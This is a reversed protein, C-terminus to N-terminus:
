RSPDASRLSAAVRPFRALFGRLVAVAAGPRHPDGLDTYSVMAWRGGVEFTWGPGQELIWALMRQDLFATSFLRDETRIRCRRAFEDSESSRVVLPGLPDATVVPRPEVVVSPAEFDIACAASAMWTPSEYSEHRSVRRDFTFVPPEGPFVILHWADTAYTREDSFSPLSQMSRPLWPRIRFRRGEKRALDALMRRRGRPPFEGLVVRISLLMLIVLITAAFLEGPFGRRDVAATFLAIATIGAAVIGASVM